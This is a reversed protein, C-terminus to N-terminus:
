QTVNFSNSTVVLTAGSGPAHLGVVARYVGTAVDIEKVYGLMSGPALTDEIGACGASGDGVLDWTFGNWRELSIPCTRVLMAASSSNSLGLLVDTGFTVDSPAAHLTIGSPGSPEFPSPSTSCAAVAAAMALMVPRFPRM